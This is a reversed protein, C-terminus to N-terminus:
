IEHTERGIGSSSSYHQRVPYTMTHLINMFIILGIAHCSTVLPSIQLARGLDASIHPSERVTDYLGSRITTAHVILSYGLVADVNM